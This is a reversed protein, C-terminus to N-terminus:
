KNDKQQKITHCGQCTIPAAKTKNEHNYKRHCGICNNHFALKLNLKQEPISLRKENKVTPENHCAECSTEDGDEWVNEGNKYLHHCDQCDIGYDDFHAQHNFKVLPMTHKKYLSSNIIIEEEQALSRIVSFSLFGLLVFVVIVVKKM